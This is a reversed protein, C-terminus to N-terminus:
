SLFDRYDGRWVGKLLELSCQTSSAHYIFSAPTHSFASTQSLLPLYDQWNIYLLDFELDLHGKFEKKSM